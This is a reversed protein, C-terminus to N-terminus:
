SFKLITGDAYQVEMATVHDFVVRHRAGEGKAPNTKQLVVRLPSLRLKRLTGNVEGGNRYTLRVSRIKQTGPTFAGIVEPTVKM